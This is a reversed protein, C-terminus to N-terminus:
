INVQVIYEKPVYSKLGNNYNGLSKDQSLMDSLSAEAPLWNFEPVYAYKIGYNRM